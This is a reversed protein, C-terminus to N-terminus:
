SGTSRPHNAASARSMGRLRSRLRGRSARSAAPRAGCAPRSCTRSSCGACARGDALPGSRRGGQQGARWGPLGVPSSLRRGPRGPRRSQPDASARPSPGARRSPSSPMPAAHLRCPPPGKTFWHASGPPATTVAYIVAEPSRLGCGSQRDGTGAPQWFAAPERWDPSSTMSRGTTGAAPEACHRGPPWPVGSEGRRDPPSRLNRQHPPAFPRLKPGDRGNVDRGTM